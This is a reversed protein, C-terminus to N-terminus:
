AADEKGKDRKVVRRRGAARPGEDAVGGGEPSTEAGSGRSGGQLGEDDGDGHGDQDADEEAEGAEGGVGLDGGHAGGAHTRKSKTRM